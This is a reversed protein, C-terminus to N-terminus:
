LAIESSLLNGMIKSLAWSGKPCIVQRFMSEQESDSRM